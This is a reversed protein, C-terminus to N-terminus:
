YRHTQRVCCCLQLTNRAQQLGQSMAEYRSAQTEVSQVNLAHTALTQRDEGARKGEAKSKRTYAHLLTNRDYMKNPQTPAQICGMEQRYNLEAIMKMPGDPGVPGGAQPLMSAKGTLPCFSVRCFLFPGETQKTQQAELFGFTVSEDTSCVSTNAGFGPRLRSFRAKQVAREGNEILMLKNAKRFSGSMCSETQVVLPRFFVNILNRIQGEDTCSCNTARSAHRCGVSPPASARMASTSKRGPDGVPSCAFFFPLACRGQLINELFRSGDTSSWCHSVGLPAKCHHGASLICRAPSALRKRTDPPPHQWRQAPRQLATGHVAWTRAHAPPGCSFALPERWTSAPFSRPNLLRSSSSKCNPFSALPLTRHRWNPACPGVAGLSSLAESTGQALEHTCEHLSLLLIFTVQQPM